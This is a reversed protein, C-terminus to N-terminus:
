RRTCVNFEIAIVGGNLRYYDCCIVVSVCDNYVLIFGNNPTISIIEYKIMSEDVFQSLKSNYVGVIADFVSKNSQQFDTM